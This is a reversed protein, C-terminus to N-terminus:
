SASSGYIILWVLVIREMLLLRNRMQNNVSEQELSSREWNFIRKINSITRPLDNIWKVVNVISQNVAAHEEAPVRNGIGSACM